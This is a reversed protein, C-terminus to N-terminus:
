TKTFINERSYFFARACRCVKFFPSESVSKMLTGKSTIAAGLAIRTPGGGVTKRGELAARVLFGKGVAGAIVADSHEKLARAADVTAASVRTM